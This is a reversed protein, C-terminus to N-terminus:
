CRLVTVTQDKGDAGPVTVTQPLCSPTRVISPAPPNPPSFVPPCRHVWDWPIDYTCTFRIDGPRYVDVDIGGYPGVNIGGFPGGGSSGGFAQNAALTLTVSLSMIFAAYMKRKM